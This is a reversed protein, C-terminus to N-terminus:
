PRSALTPGQTTSKKSSEDLPVLDALREELHRLLPPLTEPQLASIGIAAYRRCLVDAQGAPLQDCKNFVLVRPIQDLALSQLVTEVSAIHAALDKAGADVVHLLLDADRMEDLTTRFAALLDKPLDRIFGVTDTLIVERGHPFHLRRSTTDLTEFVRPATSVESKTLVNLLTSKGANTYGVISLVPFAQRVRRSRRQDQHRAFGEIERELHDIRERIRRRDTELKTEGPGRSGIGGGLRSLSTGQGSLRPLLYRLQALEVQVKGERSHARQAFIDLILQTRDIVTLDTIEDIARLQAPALDQDFILLDAGKQMAHMLVDKLKGSGLQFRHHGSQTRQVLRDIVALDASSALEALEVLREEQDAKNQPSASVLIATPKQAMTHSGSQGQLDAELERIFTDFNVPCLHVLTPKLLTYLEGKPSPPNLHALSLLGPEGKPTVTMTGIMDLRLLGLLTLDEQTLPQEKPHSRILRLGRLSRPSARFATLTTPSPETGSGVLVDQVAGRRTIVLGIPRRIEHTFQALTKAAEPSLVEDASMRRRYLRELM